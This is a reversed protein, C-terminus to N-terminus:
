NLSIKVKAKLIIPLIKELSIDHTHPGEYNGWCIHMRIMDAPIDALAIILTNM